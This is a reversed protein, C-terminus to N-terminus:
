NFSFLGSSKYTLVLGTELDTRPQWGLSNLLSSNLLKRPMGDPKTKDFVIKGKFGVIKSILKALKKITIDTGYGINIHNNKYTESSLNMIFICANAADDVYLFERKPNGSGWLVVESLNKIKAEHFRMMLAPIVHNKQIDYSDGPGYISAPMVSRYDIKYSHGYQRNYSECIKIGAIKAIAYPENTHELSGTLLANETIPQKALKPYICNSGLFLLKKINAKFAEHIINTTIMLNQYIFEAPYSSNAAIGGVKAAAIYIQDPKQKQLFNKVAQQNTLDLENHTKCIIQNQKNKSLLRCIASGVMGKHGAVYIRTKKTLTMEKTIKANYIGNQLTM